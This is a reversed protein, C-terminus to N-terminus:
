KKKHAKVYDQVDACQYAAQRYAETNSFEKLVKGLYDIRGANLNVKATKNSSIYNGYKDCTSLMILSKAKLENNRSLAFAKGYMAQAHQLRYYDDRYKISNPYFTFSAWNWNSNDYEALESTSNGYSFMMWGKGWYSTNYFANGLNYYLQAQQEPRTEKKLAEQVSVIDQLILLKSAM